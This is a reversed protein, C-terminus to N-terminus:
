RPSGIRPEPFEQPADDPVVACSGNSYPICCRFGSSSASPPQSRVDLGEKTLM